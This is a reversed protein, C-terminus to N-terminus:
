GLVKVIANFVSEVDQNGDVAVLKGNNTYFDILPETMTKYVSLRERVTEPNDDKRIVLQGGCKPCDKVDGIESINFSSKCKECSRRGTVRKEIKDLDVAIDIVVDIDSFEELAKAQVLNRPFGDLIYGNKCDDMSLRDKVLEITLEDPCFHGADMISKVQLGLPTGKKINERFIDGTSIQPISYKSSIRVAQTGKGCGPAGLLIIKM